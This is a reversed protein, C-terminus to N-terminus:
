RTVDKVPIPTAGAYFTSAFATAQASTCVVLSNENANGGVMRWLYTREPTPTM